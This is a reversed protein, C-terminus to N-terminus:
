LYTLPYYKFIHHVVSHDFGGKKITAMVHPKGRIDGKRFKNIKDYEKKSMKIPGKGDHRIEKEQLNSEVEEKMLAEITKVDVNM